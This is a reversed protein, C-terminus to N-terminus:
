QVIPQASLQHPFFYSWFESVCFNIEDGNKLALTIPVSLQEQVKAEQTYDHPTTTVDPM